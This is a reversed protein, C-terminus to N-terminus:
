CPLVLLRDFGMYKKQNDVTVTQALDVRVPSSIELDDVVSQMERDSARRVVPRHNVLGEDEDNYSAIM